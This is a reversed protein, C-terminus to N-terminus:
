RAAGASAAQGASGLAVGNQGARLLTSHLASAWGKLAIRSPSAPVAAAVRSGAVDAMMSHM